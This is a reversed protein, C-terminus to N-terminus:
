ERNKQTLEAMLFETLEHVNSFLHEQPEAAVTRLTFRWVGAHRTPSVATQREQADDILTVCSCRLLFSQYSTTSQNTTQSDMIAM